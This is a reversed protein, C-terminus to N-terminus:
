QRMYADSPRLPDVQMHAHLLETIVAHERNLQNLLYRKIYLM